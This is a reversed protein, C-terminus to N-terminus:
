NPLNSNWTSKEKKETELRNVDKVTICTVDPLKKELIARLYALFSLEFFWGKLSEFCNIIEM